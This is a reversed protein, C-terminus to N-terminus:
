SEDPTAVRARKKRSKILGADRQADKIKKIIAVPGSPIEAAFKQRFIDKDGSCSTSFPLDSLLLM